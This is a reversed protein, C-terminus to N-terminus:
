RVRNRPTVPESCLHLARGQRTPASLVPHPTPVAGL